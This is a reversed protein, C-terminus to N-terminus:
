TMIKCGEIDDCNLKELGDDHKLIKMQTCVVNKINSHMKTIGNDDIIGEFQIHWFFMILFNFVLAGYSMVM